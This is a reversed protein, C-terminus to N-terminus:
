IIDCHADRHAGRQPASLVYYSEGRRTVKQRRLGPNSVFCTQTNMVPPHLRLPTCHIPTTHFLLSTYLMMYIVVGQKWQVGRQHIKFKSCFCPRILRLAAVPLSVCAFFWVIIYVYVVIHIYTHRDTQRYTHRYTHIYTHRYTHMYTHM